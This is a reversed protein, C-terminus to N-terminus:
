LLPNRVPLNVTNHRPSIKCDLNVLEKTFRLFHVLMLNLRDIKKLQTQNSNTLLPGTRMNNLSFGTQPQLNFIHICQQTTKDKTTKYNAYEHAYKPTKDRYNCVTFM